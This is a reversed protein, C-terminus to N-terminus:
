GSDHRRYQREHNPNLLLQQGHLVGYANIIFNGGLKGGALVDDMPTRIM